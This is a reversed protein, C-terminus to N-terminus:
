GHRAKDKADLELKKSKEKKKDKQTALQDVTAPNDALLNRLGTSSWLPKIEGVVVVVM